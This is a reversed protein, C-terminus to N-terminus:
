DPEATSSRVSRPRPRRVIYIPRRKVEQFIYGVYIGIFGIIVLLTGGLILLIFMLSSWGPVLSEQQGRFWFSGVYVAEALALGLFSVGLLIGLFLPVLSFSFIADMALKVMRRLSYKSKGAIRQPTRYPVIVTRFGMWAVMGRLFRHYERMESLTEMVQRSLLRFDASAPVLRTDAILNLLRYFIESTWHKVFGLGREAIRQTLVIEYGRDFLDLLSALLEPPHQGDADMTIVADADSADLGATLAAQHGFNRALEIVVVRDDSSAIADLAAPTGDTSGDDVYIIEFRFHLSDIAQTLQAHFRGIGDKENFVPIVLEISKPQPQNPAEM